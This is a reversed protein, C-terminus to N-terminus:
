NHTNLFAGLTERFAAPTEDHIAHGCDFTQLRAVPAADVLRQGYEVPNLRDQTGLMLLLPVRMHGALSLSLDGGSDIIRRVTQIWGLVFADANDFGHLAKDAETIWTAPFMRQAAPRMQPGYFGVAGWTAVSRLRDAATGALLLAVEGGDSYGLLHAPPLDLHDFLELVDRADQQYFDAPFRRPKPLSQGYGRLTPAIVRYDRRLWDLLAPLQTQPTGLMGHILVVPPRAENVGPPLGTDLVHLRAGGPLDILTM